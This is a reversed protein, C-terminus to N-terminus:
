KNLDTLTSFMVLGHTVNADPHLRKDHYLHIISLVRDSTVVELWMTIQGDKDNKMVLQEMKGTVVVYLLM